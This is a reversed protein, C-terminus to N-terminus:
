KGKPKSRLYGWATVKFDPTGPLINSPMARPGKAMSIGNTEEDCYFWGNCHYHGMYAVGRVLFVVTDSIFHEVDPLAANVSILEIRLETRLANDKIQGM